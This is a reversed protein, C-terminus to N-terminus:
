LPMRTRTWETRRSDSVNGVDAKGTWVSHVVEQFIVALASLRGAPQRSSHRAFADGRGPLQGAQWAARLVAAGGRGFAPGAQSLEHRRPDVGRDSGPAGDGAPCLRAGAGARRGVVGVARRFSAVVPAVGVGAVASDGGGAAGREQAGGDGAIGRLLSSVARGSGSRGAVGFAKRCVGFVASGKGGGRTIGCGDEQRTVVM